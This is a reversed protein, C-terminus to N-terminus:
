AESTYNAARKLRPIVHTAGLVGLLEFLGASVSRGTVAVRTAHILPAAKIGAGEAVSRVLQEIAAPDSPRAESWV